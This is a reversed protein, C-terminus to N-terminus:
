KGRGLITYTVMAEATNGPSSNSVSLGRTLLGRSVPGLGVFAQEDNAFPEISAIAKIFEVGYPKGLLFEYPAGKPPIQYVHGRKFHDGSSYRNPFILSTDGRVNIHYLRVYCDATASFYITMKEGDLYTSAKGRDTALAVEFAPSSSGTVAAIEQQTATAKEYNEPLISLSQPLVSSNLDFSSESVVVNTAINTLRLFVTIKGTNTGFFTGDLLLDTTAAEPKVASSHTATPSKSDPNAVGSMLSKASVNLYANQRMALLLQDQLYLSFGSTLGTAAYTLSGFSIGTPSSITRTLQDVAKEIAPRPDLASRPLRYYYWYGTEKSHYSDVLQVGELRLNVREDILVTVSQNSDGASNDHAELRTDSQITTAIEAALANRANKQAAPMDTSPNGSDPAGGIGIFYAPDTPYHDLWDPVVSVSSGTTPEVGADTTRSLSSVATKAANRAMEASSASASSACSAILLVLSTSLLAVFNRILPTPFTM